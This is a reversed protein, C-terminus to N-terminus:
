NPHKRALAELNQLALSAFSPFSQALAVHPGMVLDGDVIDWSTEGQQGSGQWYTFLQQGAGDECLFNFAGAYPTDLVFGTPVLSGDSEVDYTAVSSNADATDQWITWVFKGQKDAWVNTLQQNQRPPLLPPRSIAELAGTSTDIVYTFVEGNIEDSSSVDAGAFLYENSATLVMLSQTGGSPAADGFKKYPSGPVARLAGSSADLVYGLIEMPQSSGLLYLYQNSTTFQGAGSPIAMTKKTATLAGNSRDIRYTTINNNAVTYLFNGSPDMDVTAQPAAFPSGAIRTLSGDKPSVAFGYVGKDASVYVFWGGPDAAM